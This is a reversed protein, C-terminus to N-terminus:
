LSREREAKIRARAEKLKKFYKIFKDQKDWTMTIPCTCDCEEALTKLETKKKAINDLLDPPRKAHMEMVREMAYEPHDEVYKKRAAMFKKKDRRYMEKWREKERDVKEEYDWIPDSKHGWKDTYSENPNKRVHM